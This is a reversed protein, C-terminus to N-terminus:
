KNIKNAPVGVYVGSSLISKTVCANMGITVNSCISINQKTSSNNGFYVHNGIEVNGSVRVGAATTFFDGVHSDHGVNSNNNIQSHKGITIDNTLYSFPMIISGTGLNINSGLYARKSILTFYEFEKSLEKNVINDRIKSNAISIILLHEKPNLKSYPVIKKGLINKPKFKNYIKDPESFSFFKHELNNDKIVTFVEKAFGGSGVIVIKKM